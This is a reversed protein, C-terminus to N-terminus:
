VARERHRAANILDSLLAGATPSPGGGPGTVEIMYDEVEITVANMNWAVRAAALSTGIKEPRVYAKEPDLYAIYKVRVDEGPSRVEEEPIATLPTRAVDNISRPYGLITSLIALKAAPDYGEIDISPDPEAIGEEQARRIAEKMSYGEEVLTLIYNTTANLVGILRKVRRGALGYALWVLPTGAMVTASLYLRQGASPLGYSVILDPRLALPAKNATVIVAGSYILEIFRKNIPHSEDYISPTAEVIIDGARWTEAVNLAKSGVSGLSSRPLKLLEEIRQADIGDPKYIGGTSDYVGCVRIDLADLLSSKSLLLRTFARGINGFGDVHICIHRV